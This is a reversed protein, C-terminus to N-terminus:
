YKYKNGYHIKYDNVGQVENRTARNLEKRFLIWHLDELADKVTYVREGEPIGACPFMEIGVEKSETGCWGYFVGRRLNGELKEYMKSKIFLCTRILRKGMRKFMEYAEKFNNSYYMKESNDNLRVKIVYM